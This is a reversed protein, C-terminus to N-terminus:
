RNNGKLDAFMNDDVGLDLHNPKPLAHGTARALHVGGDFAKGNSVDTREIVRFSSREPPTVQANQVDEPTATSKRRFGGFRAM